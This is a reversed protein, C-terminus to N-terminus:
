LNFFSLINKIANVIFSLPNFSQPVQPIGGPILPKQTEYTKTNQQIKDPIITNELITGSLDPDAQIKYDILTGSKIATIFEAPKSVQIWSNGKSNLFTGGLLTIELDDGRQRIFVSDADTSFDGFTAKGFGAYITDDSGAGHVRIANGSGAVPIKETVKGPEDAYRSLLVTIRSLETTAPTKFWIDPSFVESRYDYGGIRGVFKTISIASPPDTVMKLEVKKGYPNTTSWLITDTTIGTDTERSYALSKWDFKQGNISLDGNVYGVDSEAIEYSTGETPTTVLSTPRFISDYIWPEPSSFRDIIIFYDKAPYLVARNHLITSSLTISDGFEQGVVRNISEVLNISEIWPTQLVSQIKVPTVMEHSDGKYVGRARSDSWGAVSFPARPNEIAITNHNIEYSGYLMNMVYKDEGGDALLLDGRSYYEFAAQDGHLMDRNSNSLYNGWTVISLWDADAKWSGRFVQFIANQDLHSTTDPNSRPIADYNGYVCYLLDAPGSGVMEDSYPLIESNQLIEDHNLANSRTSNDYLNMFGDFYVWKTNGNTVYNNSYENPLSEWLESSFAKKAAPYKDFPNERYFHNYVQLWWMYDEVVYAKYAGNLHKGSEDDFGFSFLSRGYSHLKDDIFLYATGTKHWDEPTSILPLKNPNTYDELVAGAIGLNPYAGGHYDAFTIYDMSKGGDNLDTFTSDALTALKDRIIGDSKSDLTPQIFDYAFSYGGVAEAKDIKADITGVDLNILAEEAKKAYEPKKTIQYALGLDRAYSARYFIRDHSGLSASFDFELANDANSLIEAQLRDWPDVSSYRFGPTDKIDDFLLSPHKVPAASVLPILFLVLFFVIGWNKNRL